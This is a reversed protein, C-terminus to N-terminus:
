KRGTFVHVTSGDPLDGSILAGYGTGIWGLQERLTHAATVHNGTASLGDDWNLTIRKTACKAVIRSGRYNTPPLYYTVIAQM